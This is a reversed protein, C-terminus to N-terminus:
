NVGLPQFGKTKLFKWRPEFGEIAAVPELMEFNLKEVQEKTSKIEILQFIKQHGDTPDIKEEIVHSSIKNVAPLMSFCEKILKLIVSCIFQQYLGYYNTKTQAKTSLRGTKTLSVVENPILADNIVLEITLEDEKIQPRIQIGLENEIKFFGSQRLLEIYLHPSPNVYTQAQQVNKIWHDYEQKDKKMGKNVQEQLHKVKHLDKKFLKEFFSPKYENLTQSAAAENQGMEGIQFPPDQKSKAEWDIPTILIRHWQSLAMIQKEYQDVIYSPSNTYDYDSQSLQNGVGSTIGTSTSTPKIRSKKDSSHAHSYSLGTGPVGVTTTRRGSSNISHRFGKGGMSVGVSKKGVNLRVGPAIKVSKRFRFGMM